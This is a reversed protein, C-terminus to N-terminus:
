CLDLKKSPSLSLLSTVTREGDVIGHLGVGESETVQELLVDAKHYWKELPGINPIM